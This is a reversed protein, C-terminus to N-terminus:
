TLREPYPAICSAPGNAEPDGGSRGV